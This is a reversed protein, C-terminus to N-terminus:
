NKNGFKGDVNTIKMFSYDVPPIIECLNEPRIKRSAKDYPVVSLILYFMLKIGIM